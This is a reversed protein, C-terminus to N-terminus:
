PLLASPYPHWSSERRIATHDRDEACLPAATAVCGGKNVRSLEDQPYVKAAPAIAQPM